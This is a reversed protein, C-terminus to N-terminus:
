PKAARVAHVGTLGETPTVITPDPVPPLSGDPGPYVIPGGSGLNGPNGPGSGGGSGDGPGGSTGPVPTPEAVAPTVTVGPGSSSGPTAEQSAPAASSGCAGALLALALLAGALPCSLTTKPTM